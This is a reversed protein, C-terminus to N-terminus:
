MGSGRRVLFVTEADLELSTIGLPLIDPYASLREVRIQPRARVSEADHAAVVAADPVLGAGRQFECDLRRKILCAPELCRRHEGEGHQQPHRISPTDRLQRPLEIPCQVRADAFPCAHSPFQVIRQELAKM